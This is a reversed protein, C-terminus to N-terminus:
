HGEAEGFGHRLAHYGERKKRWRGSEFGRTRVAVAGKDDFSPSCVLCREMKANMAIASPIVRRPQALIDTREECGFRLRQDVRGQGGVDELVPGGLHGQRWHDEIEHRAAAQTGIDKHGQLMVEDCM